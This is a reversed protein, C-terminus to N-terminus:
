HGATVTKDSSSHNQASLSVLVQRHQQVTLYDDAFINSSDSVQLHIRSRIFDNRKLNFYAFYYSSQVISVDSALWNRIYDEPEPLRDIELFHYGRLLPESSDGRIKPAVNGVFLLYRVSQHACHTKYSKELDIV